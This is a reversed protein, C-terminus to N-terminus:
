LSAERGSAFVYPPPRGRRWRSTYMGNRPWSLTRMRRMRIDFFCLFLIVLAGVVGLVIEVVTGTDLGAASNDRSPPAGSTPPQSTEHPTNEPLTGTATGSTSAPPTNPQQGAVSSSPAAPLSDSGTSTSAEDARYVFYDVGVTKGKQTNTLTLVHPENALTASFLLVNELLTPGYSSLQTDPGGDISINFNGHDRNRDSYYAVYHGAFRFIVGANFSTTSHFTGGHYIGYGNLATWAKEPIYSVPVLEIIINRSSEIHAFSKGYTSSNDEVVIDGPLLSSPVTPVPSAM